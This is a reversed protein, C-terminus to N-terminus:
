PAQYCRLWLKGSETKHNHISVFSNLTVRIDSKSGRYMLIFQNNSSKIFNDIINQSYKHIIMDYRDIIILKNTLGLMHEVETADSIVEISDLPISSKFSSVPTEESKLAKITKCVYTKGTGSDGRILMVKSCLEISFRFMDTEFIFM